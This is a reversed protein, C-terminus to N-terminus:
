GPRKTAVLTVLGLPVLIGLAGIWYPAAPSWTFYAIAAIMPGIARGLASASRFSGLALGQNREGAALSVLTNLAPFVLGTGAGLVTVGLVLLGLGPHGDVLAILAFGPALLAFGAIALPKSGIRPALRRFLLGQMLASMFGIFGFLYGIQRPEFALRETALFGLTTEMGAFLLTHLLIVVNLLVIAMGLNATAFLKLPNASREGVAGAARREPPLTEHFSRLAWLLNGLSLAASIAAPTSFPNFGWAALAGQDIRISEDASLGGIVPGLIFGLGFAMGVLAMGKARSAPTPTTDAVAASAMVAAGGVVGALLRSVLLVTFSGAVMWMTYAVVSGCLSLLLIPRRGFRDSVRGWLPAAIFQLLSYVGSLLGGFLASRQLPTAAPFSADVWAMVSALVGPETHLYHDLMRPYLPFLIGFGVLDLFLVLFIVGMSTRPANDVTRV